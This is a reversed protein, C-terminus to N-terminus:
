RAIRTQVVGQWPDRSHCRMCSASDHCRCGNRGTATAQRGHMPFWREYTGHQNEEPHCSCGERGDATEHCSACQAPRSWSYAAHGRRFEAPHPMELGHCSKCKRDTKTLHCGRCTVGTKSKAGRIKRLRDLPARTHCTTCESPARVGDHCRLCASMRSDSRHSALAISPADGAETRAHGDDHGAGAHCQMCELGAEIMDAHRVRVSTGVPRTSVEQHCTLCWSSAVSARSVSEREISHGVMRLATSASGLLGGGGHCSYCDSVRHAQDTGASSHCVRCVASSVPSPLLLIAMSAAVVVPVVAWPWWKHAKRKSRLGPKRREQAHKAADSLLLWLMALLVIAVAVIAALVMAETPYGRPNRLIAPINEATTQWGASLRGSLTDLFSSM